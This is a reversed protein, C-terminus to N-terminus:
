KRNRKLKEYERNIANPNNSGFVSIGQSVIGIGWGCAVIIWTDRDLRGGVKLLILVIVYVALHMFFNTKAKVKKAALLYLESDSMQQIAKFEPEEMDM